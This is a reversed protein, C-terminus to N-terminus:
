RAHQPDKDPTKSLEEGVALGFADRANSSAQLASGLARMLAGAPLDVPLSEARMLRVDSPHDTEVILVGAKRLHSKDVDRLSGTQAILIQAEPM